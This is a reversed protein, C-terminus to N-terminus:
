TGTFNYQLVYGIGGFRNCTDDMTYNVNRSLCTKRAASFYTSSQNNDIQSFADHTFLIAGYQTAAYESSSAALNVSSEYITEVSAPQAVAGADAVKDMIISSSFVSCNYVDVMRAQVGCFFYYENTSSEFVVAQQYSCVGPQCTFPNDPGNFAIPNRPEPAQVNFDNLDLTLPDMNRDPVAFNFIIFGILVFVSPLVTTCLWAKKDRRFFAARKM